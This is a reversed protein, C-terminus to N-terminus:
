YVIKWEGDKLVHGFKASPNFLVYRLTPVTTNYKNHNKSGDSPWDVAIKGENQNTTLCQLFTQVVALSSIHKSIFTSGSENPASDENDILHTFGLLKQPLRSRTLYRDVKVLNVNDLKLAFIIDTISFISPVDHSQSQPRSLFKLLADLCRRVQTIYFLNRGALRISYRSAYANIQVIAAQVVPLSLKAASINCLSEPINHAEDIVIM